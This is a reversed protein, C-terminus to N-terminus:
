LSGLKHILVDIDFLKTPLSIRHGNNFIINFTAKNHAQIFEPSEKPKTLSEHKVKVFAVSPTDEVPLGRQTLVKKWRYISKDSLKHLRAYEALSLNSQLAQNIHDLWFQSKDPSAM